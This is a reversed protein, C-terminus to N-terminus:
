IKAPIETFSNLRKRLADMKEKGFKKEMQSHLFNDYAALRQHPMVGAANIADPVFDSLHMFALDTLISVAQDDSINLAERMSKIVFENDVNVKIKM